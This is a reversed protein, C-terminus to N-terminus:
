REEKLASFADMARRRSAKCDVIPEPYDLVSVGTKAYPEHIVSKDLHALEPIWRRICDGGPDFKRSQAVPNFMRFYPAADTGTSASWQWGGNNSAFDGDVLQEMFYQEGLRWDLMLNKSLFMATVMRLRNHMWGTQKLMRMGADVFPYGTKGEKWADLLRTNKGWDLRETKTVFARNMSVRPFGVMVHRYFERWILEDMWCAMGSNSVNMKGHNAKLLAYLCLRISIVGAALWPSLTSTGRLAPFDRGNQYDEVSADLFADLRQHAEKEGAPWWIALNEVTPEYLHVPIKQSVPHRIPLAAQKEPVPLPEISFVNYRRLLARKFPSFVKFFEGQGNLLSGPPLLVQDEFRHCPIGKAQCAKEVADDRRQENIGYENNFWVGQCNLTRSLAILETPTDSFRDLVQCILPINLLSLTDQLSALNNLRFHLKSPSEHHEKWQGPFLFYVCLVSGAESGHFLAPNDMSRLDSRLWVLQRTNKDM